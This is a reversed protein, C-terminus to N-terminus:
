SKDKEQESKEEGILENDIMCQIYGSLYDYYEAHTLLNRTHLERRHSIMQNMKTVATLHRNKGM